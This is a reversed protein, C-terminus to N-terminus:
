GILSRVIKGIKWTDKTSYDVVFSKISVVTTPVLSRVSPYECVIYQQTTYKQQNRKIHKVLDKKSSTAYHVFDNTDELTYVKKNLHTYLDNSM